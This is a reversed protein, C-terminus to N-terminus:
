IPVCVGATKLLGDSTDFEIFDFAALTGASVTVFYSPLFHEYKARASMVACQFALLLPECIGMHGWESNDYQTTTCHRIGFCEHQLDCICQTRKVPTILVFENRHKLVGQSIHSMGGILNEETGGIYKKGSTAEAFDGITDTVISEKKKGGGRPCVVVYKPNPPARVYFYQRWDYESHVKKNGPELEPKYFKDQARKNDYCWVEVPVGDYVEDSSSAGGKTSEKARKRSNPM